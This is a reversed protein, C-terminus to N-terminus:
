LHRALFKSGYLGAEEASFTVLMISRLNADKAAQDYDRTLRKAAILVGASGSANDDAGPHLKGINQPRAGTYGTGVHDYHARIIIWRDALNGKGRIIGAVNETQLRDNIDLQANLTVQVDDKLNVCKIEGNDALKRWTMLDRHQPDAEALLR